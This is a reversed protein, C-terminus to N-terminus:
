AANARDNIQQEPRFEIRTEHPGAVYYRIGRWVIRRGGASSVVAVLQFLATLPAAFREFRTVERFTAPAIQLFPRMTRQRLATRLVSCAYYTAGCILPVLFPGGTIAWAVALIASGLYMVNVLGAAALGLWWWRPTYIRVQFYQRRAFELMAPFDFDVASAVLCHPEYVVKLGAKRVAQTVLLDDNLCGQWAHPFNLREFVEKRMAWSGGWVLNFLRLGLNGALQNNMAAVIHNSWTPRVPVFWRYGTVVGTRSNATRRVMRALWLPGPCADSDAFALVEIDNPINTTAVILNHVKQGCDNALGAIEIRCPVAPFQKQFQEIVAVAPDHISEAIFCLQYDAYEQTFLSQLNSEFDLDVGKCPVFLMVPPHTFPEDTAALRKSHYRRHEWTQILTLLCVLLGISALSCYAILLGDM